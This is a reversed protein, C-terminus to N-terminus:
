NEIRRGSKTQKLVLARIRLQMVVKMKWLMVRMSWGVWIGLHTVVKVRWLLLMMMRKVRTKVKVMVNYVEPAITQILNVQSNTMENTADANAVENWEVMVNYIRTGVTQIINVQTNTIKADAEAAVDENGKGGMDDVLDGGEGDRVNHELIEVDRTEM